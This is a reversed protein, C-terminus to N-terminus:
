AHSGAVYGTTWCLQLSYGGSPRNINLVDGIVFLKPVIRSEMTKFHIEELLVGGASIVAKDAGLLGKVNLPIAKLASVIRTREETRISHNPTETDINILKLFPEVAAKPMCASLTNKIKKNSEKTLLEQVLARVLASDKKPFLDLNITVTSHQLLEGVESSMNLVTPGSIGFHTFLLKGKHVSEKKGNVFLTLQINQLTVGGLKKAWSDSLEIPVLAFNNKVITHGLKKLWVFGEGTSGTEPHSLGGTAVICARATIEKGNTLTIVFHEDNKTIGAVGSRTAVEVKGKKMYELCADWITKAKETQPFMRGDNEEKLPVNHSEFFHFSEKVAFQSFASFLFKGSDQYQALMARVDKKNNTVNCRGGGTILLKKGLKENKELLLVSKGLQASRGAAMMGAPGGGIVVVDWLKEIGKQADKKKM